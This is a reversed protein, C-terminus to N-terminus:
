RRKFIGPRCANKQRIQPVAGRCRPEAVNAHIFRRIVFAKAISSCPLNSWTVFVYLFKLRFTYAVFRLM